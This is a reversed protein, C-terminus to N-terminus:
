AARGTGGLPGGTSLFDTIRTDHEDIGFTEFMDKARELAEEAEAILQEAERELRDYDDDTYKQFQTM